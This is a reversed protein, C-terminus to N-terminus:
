LRLSFYTQQLDTTKMCIFTQFNNSPHENLITIKELTLMCLWIEHNGCVAVRRNVSPVIECTVLKKQSGSSKISIPSDTQSFQMNIRKQDKTVSILTNGNDRSTQKLLRIDSFCRVM